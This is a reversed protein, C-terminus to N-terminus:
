APIAPILRRGYEEACIRGLPASPQPAGDRAVAADRGVTGRPTTFAVPCSGRRFVSPLTSDVPRGGETGCRTRDFSGSRFGRRLAARDGSVRGVARGRRHRRDM